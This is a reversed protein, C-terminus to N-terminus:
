VVMILNFLLLIVSFSSGAAYSPTLVTAFLSLSLSPSASSDERGRGGSMEGRARDSWWCPNGHCGCGEGQGGHSRLWLILGSLSSLHWCPELCQWTPRLPLAPHRNEVTTSRNHSHTLMDDAKHTWHRTSSLSSFIIHPHSKILSKYSGSFIAAFVCIGWFLLGGCLRVLFRGCAWIYIHQM